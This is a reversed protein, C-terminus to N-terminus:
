SILLCPYLTSVEAFHIVIIIASSVTILLRPDEHTPHSITQSPKQYLVYPVTHDM